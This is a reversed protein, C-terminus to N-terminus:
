FNIESLREECGSFIKPKSAGEIWKVLKIKNDAIELNTIGDTYLGCGSNFYCPLPKNVPELEVINRNKRKEERIKNKIERIKERNKRITTKSTRSFKIESKLKEIKEELRCISSKAAFIARHTHGCILIVKNKKAWSYMIKEYDNTIQSKTAAPHGYFGLFKIFPEFTKFIGRVFFKSVWSMKDSEVNGQHGHVLMIIADDNQFKLKLAEPAGRNSVPNKMTPDPASQWQLDHNGFIRIIRENEFSRLKKYVSNNYRIKVQELDFQWLEEIDGLLIITYDNKKYFSLATLLIEENHHFDDAPGGDGLHLDSFIALKKDSINLSQTDGSKWLRTLIKYTINKDQAM